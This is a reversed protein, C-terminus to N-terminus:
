APWPPHLNTVPLRGGARATGKGSKEFCCDPRPDVVGGDGVRKESRGEWRRQLRCPRGGGGDKGGSARAYEFDVPQPPALGFLARGGRPTCQFNSGFFFRDGGLGGPRARGTAARPPGVGSVAGAGHTRALCPGTREGASTPDYDHRELPPLCTHTHPVCFPRPPRRLAWRPRRPRPRGSRAPAVPAWGETESWPPAPCRAGTQFRGFETAPM